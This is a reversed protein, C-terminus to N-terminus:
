LRFGEAHVEIFRLFNAVLGSIADMLTQERGIKQWKGGVQPSRVAGGEFQNLNAGLM